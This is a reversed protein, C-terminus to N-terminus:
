STSQVVDQTIMSSSSSISTIDLRNEGGPKFPKRKMKGTICAECFSLKDQKTLKMGTVKNKSAMDKICQENAHGLRFHWTDISKDDQASALSAVEAHVAECDLEYLKDNLTYGNWSAESRWGSDMCCRSHGFKIFKGKSAAARVSFLNCALKPVYLVRYMISKKPQSVKFLMKLHVNGYGLASVTRGDGLGVKEPSDFEHYDVLLEKNCTMHSSAGSDVLWKDTQPRDTSAPFASNSEGEEVAAKKCRFCIVTRRPRFKKGAGGVLAADRRPVDVKGVM